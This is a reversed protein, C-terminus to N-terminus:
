QLRRARGRSDPEASSCLNHFKIGEGRYGIVCEPYSASIVKFCPEAGKQYAIGFM